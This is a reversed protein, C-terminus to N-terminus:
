YLYKHRWTLFYSQFLLWNMNIEVVCVRTHPINIHSENM